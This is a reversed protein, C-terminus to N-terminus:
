PNEKYAPLEQTRQVYLQDSSDDTANFVEPFGKRGQHVMDRHFLIKKGLSCRSNYQSCCYPFFYTSGVQM